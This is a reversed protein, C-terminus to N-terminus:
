HLQQGQKLMEDTSLNVDVQYFGQEPRLWFWVEKFDQIKYEKVAEEGAALYAFTALIGRSNM